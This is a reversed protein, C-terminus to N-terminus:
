LVRLDFEGPLWSLIYFNLGLLVSVLAVGVATRAKENALASSGGIALAIPGLAPLLYRGQGQFYQMNFRIFLAVILLSFTVPILFAGSKTTNSKQLGLLGFLLMGTLIAIGILYVKESLFIDMYGFVGILSRSTWWSVWQTWYHGAGFTEIFLAAKPSGEFARQFAGMALPDGYLTQNRALWAGSILFPLIAAAIAQVKTPAFDKGRRMSLVIVLFLTLVVAMATTKTLLALGALLGLRLTVGWCWGVEVARVGFALFWTCLTILLPDNSVAGSLALNMPLFAYLSAAILSLGHKGTAWFALFFAGCVGAAGIVGNLARLPVASGDAQLDAPCAIKSWGAALIYFLPPQHAQYNEYPDANPDGLVPFRGEKAVAEIYNVHQREDPAGIDPAAARSQYILVGAKRYPTAKAYLVALILHACAIAALVWLTTTTSNKETGRM